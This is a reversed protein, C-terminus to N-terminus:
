HRGFGRPLQISLLAELDPDAITLPLQGTPSARTAEPMADFWGAYTGQLTFLGSVHADRREIRTLSRPKPPSAAAIPAGM